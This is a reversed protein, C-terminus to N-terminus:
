PTTTANTPKHLKQSLISMTNQNKGTDVTRPTTKSHTKDNTPTNTHVKYLKTNPMEM